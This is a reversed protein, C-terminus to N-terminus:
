RNDQCWVYIFRIMSSSYINCFIDIMEYQRVKNQADKNAKKALLEQVVTFHGERCAKILPTDGYQSSLLWSIPNNFVYLSLLISTNNVMSSAKCQIICWHIFWLMYKHVLSIVSHEYYIFLNNIYSINYYKNFIVAEYLVLLKYIIIIMMM